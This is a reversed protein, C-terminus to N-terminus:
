HHWHHWHHRWSHHHWYHHHWPYAQASSVTATLAVTALVAALIIKM